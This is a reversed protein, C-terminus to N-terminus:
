RIVNLINGLRDVKLKWCVEKISEGTIAKEIKNHSLLEVKDAIVKAITSPVFCCQKGSSSVMKYIRTKDIHCTGMTREEETPVYVLDNPSLYFKLAVGKENYEPVPSLKQKQREIAERLPVSYYYRKGEKDEYIAFFLNTSKDAVVYKKTKAGREGVQYKAGLTESLRVNKIPKHAKGNNYLEINSNMEQIGEPAFAVLADGGKSELYNLLIAQIGTDTISAIKKKDFSTDLPKRVAVMPTKNDSSIWVEVKSVDQRNWKYNLSKFHAVLQKKNFHKDVLDNVYARLQANCIASINDLAKAIPLAEKRILNVRGFVTEKHMSKRIAWMDDGKQSFIIKKGNKDYRQYRNTARNIIRVNNKFSVVIDNLAKLADQTFTDWPKNIIRNKDCLLQRLDERQKPSNANANSIYNVMNRTTCAIVLADMAHHRHDIRKKKFGKEYELPVNTRFYRNGNEEKMEGFDNTGSLKNLREFRPTVITNWVDKLGWDNKLRDTVSGSSPLLNKATAEEEGQQRVVNSLLSMITKTIYRTDNLQRSSFSEPINEALLNDRKRKNHAYHENVFQKYAEEKLITVAKGLQTCYIKQGGQKKIFEYGLMNGKAKNVEAECIVKNNFSNDFYRSQPIIHEIEYATTFLKSLSIAKGTYPSCYRQELWLKYRILEANTPHEKKSIKIIDDYDKDQKNLNGLVAQEYIRMKEQHIPSLARVDKIFTDNKLEELLYKIRLNTAENNLNRLNAENRQQATLKMERAVEVHIEDIHKEAKWIDYVVRLTELIVQEVIPNRLSHQPFSYIFKLLDEPTDWCRIDTVESHRGYIVYSALYTPLGQFDSVHHLVYRSDDIKEKLKSDVNGTIIQQICKLTKADIAQENWAKGMRMLTLLRKIAKESYAGYCKNFPKIKLFSTVFNDDDYLKRLAKASEEKEEVSYLLHWLRYQMNPTDDLWQKDMGARKLASLLEYRTENCPYSKTADKIYNWEIPFVKEKDIQVKKIKFFDKLLIDQKIEKRDNLYTFLNCYDQPTSLYQATVDERTVVDSLRLNHIFQWLRFEQYYPNSKAICKIPMEKIEGTKKDVYEYCEYKCNAILSKKSKLPRQYFIIDDVLLNIMNSKIVENYHVDNHAYLEKACSELLNQNHLEDHYKAQQQLIETLEKKYYKREITRVLNGRIKDNPKSLINDYIFAGVTKGSSQLQSETRKKVLGWDDEKPLRYSPNQKGRDFIKPTKGDKEYTTVVILQLTKGVWDYLPIDSKKKYIGGDELHINYWIGNGKQEEDADVSIVKLVKYEEKKTPQEEEEEGRLQYYGRKTNFNLLIWALEEKSIVQTLAKKRLYYITWDLPVKKGNAVLQPQHKAFDSLMEHFSDMFVFEMKGMENKNQRWALKPESDDIFKGYTKNDTKDWGLLQDFHAPLFNMIHLVRCLRERRLVHREILRRKGRYLTRQATQSVTDGKEFSGLIDQSMPIIRSGMKISGIPNGNEEAKVLAWGISNSGLDLGLINKM